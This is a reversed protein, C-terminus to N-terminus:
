RLIQPNVIQATGKAKVFFGPLDPTEVLLAVITQEQAHEGPSRTTKGNQPSEFVVITVSHDSTAFSVDQVTLELEYAGEIRVERFSQSRQQRDDLGRLYLM